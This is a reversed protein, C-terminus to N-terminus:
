WMRGLRLDWEPPDFQVRGGNPHLTLEGFIPRGVDYLDVRLFAEDAALREAIQRM